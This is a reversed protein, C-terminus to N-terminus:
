NDLYIRPVSSSIRVMVEYPIAGSFAGHEEISIFEEGQKGYIVVEEGRKPPSFGLVPTLDIMFFNMCIDGVIKVRRGRFLVEGQKLSRPLGEAYGMSVVAINSKVPAKWNWNYSVGQGSPVVRSGSIFSKLSSIPLVNLERWKKQAEDSLFDVASKVGFLLLGVRAGWEVAQNHVFFNLLSASSLLHTKLKPFGKQMQVYISRFSEISKKTKDMQGGCPLHASIFELCLKPHKKLFLILRDCDKLDFGLRSMGVDFKIHIGKKSIKNKLVASLYCELDEMSSIVPIMKESLVMKQALEFTNISDFLLIEKFPLEALSLAEEYNLVGVSTCREDLLSQAVQDFGLGYAQSKILPCFFNKEGVIKKILRVNKRFSLLHVELVSRELM